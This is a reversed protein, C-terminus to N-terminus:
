APRLALRQGLVETTDFMTVLRCVGGPWVLATAAGHRTDAFVNALPQVDDRGLKEHVTVDVALPGAAAALHQLLLSGDGLDNISAQVSAPQQSAREDAAEGVM